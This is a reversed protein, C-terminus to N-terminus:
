EARTRLSYRHRVPETAALIPPELVYSLLGPEVVSGYYRDPVAVGLRRRPHSLSPQVSTNAMPPSRETRDDVLISQNVCEFGSIDPTGAEVHEVLFQKRRVRREPPEVVDDYRWM